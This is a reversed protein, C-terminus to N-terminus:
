ILSRACAAAGLERPSISSPISLRFKPVAWPKCLLPAVWPKGLIFLLTGLVLAEAAGWFSWRCRSDCSSSWTGAPGVLRQRAPSIEDVSLESTGKPPPEVAPHQCQLSLLPSPEAYGHQWPLRVRRSSGGHSGTGISHTHACSTATGIAARGHRRHGVFWTDWKLCPRVGRSWPVCSAGWKHCPCGHAPSVHGENDLPLCRQIHDLATTLHLSALHLPTPHLSTLHPLPASLHTPHSSLIPLSFM